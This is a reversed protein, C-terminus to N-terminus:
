ITDQSFELEQNGENEVSSSRQSLLELNRLVTTYQALSNNHIHKRDHDGGEYDSDTNEM